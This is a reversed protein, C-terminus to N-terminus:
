LDSLCYRKSYLTTDDAYITVNCIVGNPFDNIYLGFLTHDLIFGQLVGANAPHKQQFKGDLVM